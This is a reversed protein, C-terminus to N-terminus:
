AQKAVPMHPRDPQPSLAPRGAESGLEARKITVEPPAEIAIRVRRRSIESVTVVIADGIYIKEDQRRTLVLM